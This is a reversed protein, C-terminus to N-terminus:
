LGLQLHSYALHRVDVRGQIYRLSLEQLEFILKTRKYSPKTSTFSPYATSTKTILRRIKRLYWQTVKCWGIWLNPINEKWGNIFNREIPPKFSFDVFGILLYINVITALVAARNNAPGHFFRLRNHTKLDAM